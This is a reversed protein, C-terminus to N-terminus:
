NKEDFKKMSMEKLEDVIKIYPKMSNYDKHGTWKMVVEAPIGLYLSNVIFTRRGCHTSILAYKPYVEEVRNNDTFHIIKKQENFGAYEALEKLYDNMRQNSIVPLVKNNEFEVKCYKELIARSYKNLEIKIDDSTKQTVVTIYKDKIDSKSLNKVDSYRLSTFCQFCFVDRVKSLHQRNNPIELFYLHMLEKWDLYIPENIMETGKLKISFDNHLNGDYYGRKKAWRLFTKIDVIKRSVTTNHLGEAFMSKVFEFLDNDTLTTLNFNQNYRVIKNKIVNYRKKTGDSWSKRLSMDQMFGDFIDSFTKEGTPLESSIRGSRKNFETRFDNISPVKSILEFFGFVDDAIQEFRGIEKNIINAAVKKKGHTTSNKCRQTDTSWKDIDVRYGVNFAVINKNNNWKIRYRLKADQKGVEKDLLFQCVRKINM